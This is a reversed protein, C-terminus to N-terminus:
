SLKAILPGLFERLTPAWKAYDRGSASHGFESDIEFYRADVGAEGLAKMYEPAITPPFIRDTRCLVYLLKAEIKPFDPVTNYALTARRLIILSNPDWTEAWKEAQRRIEAERAAPDPFKEALAAETGYRKLTEVRIETMVAKVGGKAYYQGGNWNPDTALRAELEALGKEVNRSRPATVVAVVGDMMRPYSVSWQFAQYGGLSPGAVAVLHKVGIEDLLAKQADVIDQMTIAPFDPGYPEGTAPNLSAGNTSGASSGLANSSVVFLKDTDIAKGPGILGDWWGLQYGNASNRGAAHHTSTYGHTILVANRGDPALKGYTEYAIKVEPMVAGNQLHFNHIVFSQDEVAGFEAAGAAAGGLLLFLAAVTIRRM